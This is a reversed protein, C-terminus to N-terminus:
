GEIGIEDTSERTALPWPQGSLLPRGIFDVRPGRFHASRKHIWLMMSIMRHIDYKWGETKM